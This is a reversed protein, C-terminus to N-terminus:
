NYELILNSAIQNQGAPDDMEVNASMLAAHACLLLQRLAVPNVASQSRATLAAQLIAQRRLEQDNSSDALYAIAGLMLLHKQLRETGNRSPSNWYAPDNGRSFTLNLSAREATGALRTCYLQSEASEVWTNAAATSSLLLLPLALFRSWM